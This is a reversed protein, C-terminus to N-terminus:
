LTPDPLVAFFPTTFSFDSDAPLLHPPYFCGKNNYPSLLQGQKNGLKEIAAKAQEKNSVSIVLTGPPRSALKMADAFTLVIQNLASPPLDNLKAM